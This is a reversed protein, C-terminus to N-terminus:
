ERDPNGDVQINNDRHASLAFERPLNLFDFFVVFSRSFCKADIQCEPCHPMEAHYRTLENIKCIFNPCAIEVNPLPMDRPPMQRTSLKRVVSEWERTHEGIASPLLKDLDLNATRSAGGHCDLCHGEVFQKLPPKARDNKPPTVEQGALSDSAFASIRLREPLAGDGSGRLLWDRRHGSRAPVTPGEGAVTALGARDHRMSIRQFEGRPHVKGARSM